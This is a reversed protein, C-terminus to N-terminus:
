AEIGVSCTMSRSIVHTLIDSSGGDGALVDLDDADQDLKDIYASAGSLHAVKACAAHLAILKPSPVPLKAPDSSTLTIEEPVQFNKNDTICRVHYCNDVNTEELWLYLRDFMDHVDHQMTM